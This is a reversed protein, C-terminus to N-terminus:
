RRFPPMETDSNPYIKSPNLLLQITNLLIKLDLMWTYENVYLIDYQFKKEWSIANRGKVQALGTLGPKVTHRLMESETYFKLYEPLLPRPGVISMDGKIVNFFEPLEDLSYNRLFKSFIKLDKIKGEGPKWDLPMSRFKFITFIKNNLGVRQQKFIIPSGLILYVGIGIIILAILLIPSILFIFLKDLFFKYYKRYFMTFRTNFIELLMVFEIFM